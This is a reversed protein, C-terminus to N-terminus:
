FIVIKEFLSRSIPDIMHPAKVNQQNWIPINPLVTACLEAILSLYGLVM